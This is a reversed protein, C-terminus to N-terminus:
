DLRKCGKAKKSRKAKEKSSRGKSGKPAGAAKSSPGKKVSKSRVIYNNIVVDQKTIEAYSKDVVTCLSDSQKKTLDKYYGKMVKLNLVIQDKLEKARAGSQDDLREIVDECSDIKRGLVEIFGALISTPAANQALSPFIITFSAAGCTVAAGEGVNTTGSTALALDTASGDIGPLDNGLLFGSDDEAELTGRLDIEQGTEDALQFSESLVLWAEEEQHIKNVRLRGHNRAWEWAAAVMAKTWHCESILYHKTYWGGQKLKSLTKRNWKKVEMELTKFDGHEKLLSRLKEKGEDTKYMELAEKSCKLAGCKKPQFYRRLKWYTPSQSRKTPMSEELDRGRGDQPSGAEYKM